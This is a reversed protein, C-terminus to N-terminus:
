IILRYLKYYTRSVKNLNKGSRSALLRIRSSEASFGPSPGLFEMDGEQCRWTAEMLRFNGIESTFTSIIAVGRLFFNTFNQFIIKSTRLDFKWSKKCNLRLFIMILKNDYNKKLGTSPENFGLSEMKSM